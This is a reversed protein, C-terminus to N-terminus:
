VITDTTAGVNCSHQSCLATHQTPRGFFQDYLCYRPTRQATAMALSALYMDPASSLLLFFDPSQPFSPDSFSSTMWDQLGAAGAGLSLPINLVSLVEIGAAVLQASLIPWISASFSDSVRVMVAATRLNPLQLFIQMPRQM